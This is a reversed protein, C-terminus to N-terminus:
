TCGSLPSCRLWLWLLCGLGGCGVVWLWAMECGREGEGRKEEGGQATPRVVEASRGLGYGVCWRVVGGGKRSRRWWRALVMYGGVVVAVGRGGGEGGVVRRRRGWVRLPM